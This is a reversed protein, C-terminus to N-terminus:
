SVEGRFLPKSDLGSFVWFRWRVVTVGRDAKRPARNTGRRRTAKDGRGRPEMTKADGREGMVKGGMGVVM